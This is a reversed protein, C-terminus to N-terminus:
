IAIETKKRISKIIVSVFVHFVAVKLRSIYLYFLFEIQRLFLTIWDHSFKEGSSFTVKFKKSYCVRIM